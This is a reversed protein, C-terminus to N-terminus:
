LNSDICPSVLSWSGRSQRLVEASELGYMMILDLASAYPLFPEHLQRYVPHSYQHILVSVGRGTFSDLDQRLYHEAGATSLYEHAGVESCLAAVYEGRSGSAALDSARRVRTTIDLWEALWEIVGENLERLRGGAVLSPLLGSLQGFVTRYHPAKSYNLSVTKLFKVAFLPNALEVETIRQGHRGKGVVPVSITVLGESSRFRNRQQWSQKEFQVTDLLIMEDAQDFVDFWGLWPFFTPQAIACRMM